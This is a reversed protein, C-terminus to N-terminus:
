RGDQRWNLHRSRLSEEAEKSREPHGKLDLYVQVPHVCRIDDRIESEHFVGLDNPLVLWVNSGRDEERFQLRDLLETSPDRNLYLTVIRFGAFHDILWAGALCTAAYDISSRTLETTIQQMLDQASRTPVHGRAIQHKSFDYTDRWADLLLDLERSQIAGTKDKALLGQEELRAVIRSTFGEDMGTALAIQRQTTPQGPHTLLWRAIRSGMPAFVSSPRGRRKFLNPKGEIRIRLGPAEIHANGSLDLWSVREAQCAADGAQGMFPVALLPICPSGMHAACGHLRRAAHAVIATESSGKWGVAFTFAGAKLVADPLPSMRSLRVPKTKVEKVSLDLMAALSRTVREVAQSENPLNMTSLIHTNSWQTLNSIKTLYPYHQLTMIM